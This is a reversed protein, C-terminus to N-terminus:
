RPRLARSGAREPELARTRGASDPSPRQSGPRLRLPGLLLPGALLLGLAAMTSSPTPLGDRVRVALPEASWYRRGQVTNVENPDVGSQHLLGQELRSRVLWSQPPVPPNPSQQTALFGDVRAVPALYYLGPTSFSVTASFAAPAGFCPDGSTASQAQTESTYSAAPDPDPGSRVRTEDVQFCGRVQWEISLVQDPVLQTPLSARNTWLVYPEAIDIGALGIRLAKPVYGDEAGGPTLLDADGGLVTLDAPRKEESIEITYGLARRGPAPWSPDANNPDWGTAYSADDLPGHVPLLLENATGVPYFFPSRPPPAYSGGYTSLRQGLANMAVQDPSLDEPYPHLPSGWQHLIMEVGGHYDLVVRFPHRRALEHIARAGVTSLTLEDECGFGCPDRDYPHDRNMDEAPGLDEGGPGHRLGHNFGWPNAIPMLYIERRDVLETLWPDKGYRELLLRALALCVEVGVAEDGHQAAVLLVEPKDLGTGENTVRLVHHELQKGNDPVPLLGFLAQATSWEALGPHAAALAQLEAAMQDYTHYDFPVAAAPVAAALWALAAWAPLGSARGSM